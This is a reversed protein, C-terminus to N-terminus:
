DINNEKLLDIITEAMIDAASMPATKGPLGTANIYNLKLDKVASPDIGSQKSALEILLAKKNLNNLVESDFILHPVTNIVIDYSGIKKYLEDYYISNMGIANIEAHNSTKRVCVDIDSTFIKLRDLLIRAVRGFGTVLIKSNCITRDTNDILLAITGEATPIANKIAFDDRSCIDYVREHNFGAGIILTNKDASDFLKQISKDKSNTFSFNINDLTVPTPLIIVDTHPQVETDYNYIIASKYYKSLAEKVLLSRKDNGVILIKM